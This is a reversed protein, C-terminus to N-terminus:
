VPPEANSRLRRVVVENCGMRGGVTRMREVVFGRESLFEVTEDPTAVEFPWGGVWDVLDHRRSMGRDGSRAVGAFAEPRGARVGGRDLWRVPWLAAKGVAKGGFYAAGVGYAYPGRLWRPLRRYGDKIAAWLESLRGQDNYLAVVFRGGPGARGAAAEVAPWMAGTHHLVGWSYVVDFHGLSALFDADLVSGVEVRWRRDGEGFRRRLERCCAASEPDFDFATVDAGLRWAALSFLGSGCGADLFRVGELPRPGDLALLRRLSAEAEAVRGEDVDALFRRWNAGFEFHEALATGDGAAPAPPTLPAAPSTM